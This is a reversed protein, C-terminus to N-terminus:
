SIKKKIRQIKLNLRSIKKMKQSIKSDEAFDIIQKNNYAQGILVVLQKEEALLQKSVQEKNWYYKIPDINEYISNHIKKSVSNSCNCCEASLTKYQSDDECFNFIIRKENCFYCNELKIM